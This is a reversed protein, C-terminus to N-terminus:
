HPAFFNLDQIHRPFRQFIRRSESDSAEICGLVLGSDNYRIDCIRVPTIVPRYKTFTSKFKHKTTNQKLRKLKEQKRKRRANLEIQKHSKVRGNRNVISQQRIHYISQVSTKMKGGTCCCCLLLQYYLSCDFGAECNSTCYIGIWDHNCRKKTRLLKLSKHFLM